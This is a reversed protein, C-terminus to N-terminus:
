VGTIGIPQYIATAGKTGGKVRYLVDPMGYILPHSLEGENQIPQNHYKKWNLTNKDVVSDINVAYEVHWGDTYVDLLVKFTGIFSFHRGVTQESTLILHDPNM